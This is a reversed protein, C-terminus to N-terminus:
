EAVRDVPVGVGLVERFCSGVVGADSGRDTGSQVGVRSSPDLQANEGSVASLGDYGYALSLTPGTRRSQLRGSVPTAPCTRVTNCGMPYRFRDEWGRPPSYPGLIVLSCWNMSAIKVRCAARGAVSAGRSILRSAPTAM